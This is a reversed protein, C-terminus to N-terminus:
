DKRGVNEYRGLFTEIARMEEQKEGGDVSLSSDDKTRALLSYQDKIWLYAVYPNV